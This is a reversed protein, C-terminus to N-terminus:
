NRIKFTFLRRKDDLFRLFDCFLEINMDVLRRKKDIIIECYNNGDFNFSDLSNLNFIYNINDDKLRFFKM